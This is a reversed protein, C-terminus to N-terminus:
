RPKWKRLNLNFAVFQEEGTPSFSADERFAEAGIANFDIMKKKPRGVGFRTGFNEFHSGVIYNTHAM